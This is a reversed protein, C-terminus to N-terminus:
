SPRVHEGRNSAQDRHPVPEPGTGPPRSCFFLAVLVAGAALVAISVASALAMGHAYAQGTVETLKRDGTSRKLVSGLVAPALAVAIRQLARNLASGAGAQSPPLMALVADASLPLSLGLGLGFVALAAATVPYGSGAGAQTLVALGACCILMGATIV